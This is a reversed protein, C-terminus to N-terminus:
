YSMLFFQSVQSIYGCKILLFARNIINFVDLYLTCNYTYDDTLDIITQIEDSDDKTLDIIIYTDEGTLDIITQINYSDDRTLDIIIYTDKGTLDIIIQINDQDDGTLDIITHTDKKTLDIIEVRAAILSLLM